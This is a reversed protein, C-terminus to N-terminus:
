AAKKQEREAEGEIVEIEAFLFGVEFLATFNTIYENHHCKSIGYATNGLTHAWFAGLMNHHYEEAGSARHIKRMAKGMGSKDGRIWPETIEQLIYGTSFHLSGIDIYGCAMPKPPAEYVRISNLVDIIFDVLNAPTEFHSVLVDAAKEYLSTIPDKVKKM